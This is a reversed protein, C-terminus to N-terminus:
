VKGKICTSVKAKVEIKNSVTEYRIKGMFTRLSNRLTIRKSLTCIKPLCMRHNEHVQEQCVRALDKMIMKSTEM